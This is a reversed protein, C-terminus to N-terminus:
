LSNLFEMLARRDTPSLGQFANRSREAEGGHLNIAEEISSARGDHLFRNMFRLGMLPETRFESATAAGLCIDALEPGMDHLLLDTYARVEKDALADVPNDGTRLTPVHCAACGIQGFLREGREAPGSVRERAPPALFRVFADVAAVEEATVEPEPLPDVGDPIPDGGVTGEDPVNPTTVGQEIQFAGENFEALTPILAKRGFRAIRGDFFRGVRGSIGDGDEDDPDAMELLTENPVADLLGFGFVDPTTRTGQSAGDPIPESDIGLADRLAQTVQQQYVPGGKDALPDCFGNPLEESAHIESIAGAGGSAEEAHCSACSAANFLPGLGTEPNFTREFIPRGDEFMQRQEDTLGDIPDGPEPPKPCGAVVFAAALLFLSTAFTSTRSM